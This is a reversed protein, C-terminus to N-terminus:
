HKIDVPGLYRDLWDLSEKIIEHKTPFHGADLIAHRKDDDPVGLLRFMPKQSLELPFDTDYRGNIMLTPVRVRPAFNLADIEGPRPTLRLGGGLLISAKLRQELTTMIPGDAAGRSLGYYALKERDIDDRTELYDVSRGLDKSWCVVQDRLASTGWTRPDGGGRREFTYNYIPFLFARGSRPLFDFYELEWLVQSSTLQIADVGPCFIVVQFPPLANRPLALYAMMREDGYAADFIITEMKWYKSTEDVSEVVANLETWDYSYINAALRFADDDVPHEQSYDRYLMEIPAALETPCSDQKMCRFGNTASRDFPRQKEEDIFRYPPDSWAGGMLYRYNGSFNWCWEKVNGAMDLTGYPGLGQNTGVPTPGKRGFNSFYLVDSFIDRGAANFWHYVTPLSKGVFEAYAASEYWSVGNVPFKAQGEPFTGLEWTSPGPRGTADRFESVAQEWPIEQGDKYFPEKWYDRNEYGGADVFQQFERNTVENIDIWYEEIQVEKDLFSYSGRPIRVMGPPADEGELKFRIDRAFWGSLVARKTRYGPKTIRWRLNGGPIAINDLPTEGVLDWDNDVDNYGKIFVEAGPPDTQISVPMWVM